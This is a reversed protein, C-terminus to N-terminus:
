AVWPTRAHLRALRALVDISNRCPDDTGSLAIVDPAHAVLDGYRELQRHVAREGITDGPKRAVAVDAPVDLYVHVDPRPLLRNVAARHARLDLGGYLVDLTVAADVAHRDYVVVGQAAIHFRWSDAVYSAVVATAWLLGLAGQRSRPVRTDGAAVSRVGPEPREGLARKAVKAVGALLGLRMGPRSWVVTAPVGARRLDDVLVRALTSKGAGDVGSLAVVVRRRGIRRVAARALRSLAPTRRVRRGRGERASSRFAELDHGGLEAEVEAAAALAGCSAPLQRGARALARLELVDRPSAEGRRHIRAIVADVPTPPPGDHLDVATLVEGEEVIAWRDCGRHGLRELLPGLPLWGRASLVAPDPRRVVYADIDSSWGAGLPSTRLGDPALYPALVGAVAALAQERRRSTTADPATPAVREAAALLEGDAGGATLM